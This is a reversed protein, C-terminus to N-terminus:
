TRVGRAPSATVVHFQGDCACVSALALGDPLGKIHAPLSRPEGLVKGYWEELVVFYYKKGMELTPFHGHRWEMAGASDNIIM